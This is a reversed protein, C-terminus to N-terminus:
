RCRGTGTKCFPKDSKRRVGQGAGTADRARYHTLIDVKMEAAPLRRMFEDETMEELPFHNSYWEWDIYAM